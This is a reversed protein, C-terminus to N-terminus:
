LPNQHAIKEKLPPASIMINRGIIAMLFPMHPITQDYGQEVIQEIIRQQYDHPVFQGNDTESRAIQAVIKLAEFVTPPMQAAKYLARFGLPGSDAMLKKANLTPIGARRAMAAVFFNYNGICLARVVISSTLKEESYLLHTLEELDVDADPRMFGLTAWERANQVANELSHPALNYNEALSQRISASVRTVVREAVVMSMNGRKVIGGIVSEERSFEEVVKVLLNDSIEAKKNEVLAGVVEKKETEVLAKSIGETVDKRKAIAVQSALEKASHVIDILDSETLVESFQLVPVSVSSVDKAMTLALDHPITPDDKLHESLAQRVSVEADRVLLRFIEEAISREKKSLTVNRYKESVRRALGERIDTPMKKSLLKIDAKSLAESGSEPQDIM